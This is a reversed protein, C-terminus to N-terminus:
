TCFDLDQSSESLIIDVRSASGSQDRFEAAPLVVSANVLATDLENPQRRPLDDFHNMHGAPRVIGM